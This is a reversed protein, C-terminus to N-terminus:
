VNKQWHRGEGVKTLQVLANTGSCQVLTGTIIDELWFNANLGGGESTEAKFEFAEEPATTDVTAAEKALIPCMKACKARRAYKVCSQSDSKSCVNQMTSWFQAFTHCQLEEDSFSSCMKLVNLLAKHKACM